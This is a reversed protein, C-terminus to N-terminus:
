TLNKRMYAPYLLHNRMKYLENIQYLAISAYCLAFYLPIPHLIFDSNQITWWYANDAREFHAFFLRVFNNQRHNSWSVNVFIQSSDFCIILRTRRNSSKWNHLRLCVGNKRDGIRSLCSKDGLYMKTEKIDYFIM